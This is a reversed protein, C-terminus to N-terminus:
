FALLGFPKWFFRGRNRHGTSEKAFVGADSATRKHYGATEEGVIAEDGASWLVSQAKATDAM